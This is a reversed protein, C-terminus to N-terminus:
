NKVQINLRVDIKEELPHPDLFLNSSVKVGEFNRFENFLLIIGVLLIVISLIGGLMTSQRARKNPNTLIDFSKM